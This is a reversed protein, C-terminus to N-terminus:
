RRNPRRGALEGRPMLYVRAFSTAPPASDEDRAFRPVEGAYTRFGPQQGVHASFTGLTARSSTHRSPRARPPLVDLWNQVLVVQTADGGTRVFVFVSDGPLVDYQAHNGNFNYAGGPLLTQRRVVRLTPTLALEAEMVTTGSRYFLEKGSRAWVPEVGGSVSIQVLGGPGPFPRVYVEDYGSEDSNYALWRGDPSLAPARENFRSNVFPRIASPDSAPFYSLDSNQNRGRDGTRVVIWRGDRSEVAEESSGARRFLPAQQGSGDAQITDITGDGTGTRIGRENSRFLIRRGDGSWAPYTNDGTSTLRTSTQERLRYLWLDATGSAAGSLREYVLADGDPSVRPSGYGGALGPADDLLRERGSRDVLMLGHAGIDRQYVLMGNRAVALEMWGTAGLVVGDFLPIPDGTIRMRDPDFPIVHVSHDARSFLVYGPDLYRADTGQILPTVKRSRLDVVAVDSNQRAGRSITILIGKGNPLVDAIAHGNEGRSTDPATIQTVAGGEAPVSAIGLTGTRQFYIRGDAGWALWGQLSDAIRKTIGGDIAMTMVRGSEGFAVSRGDPSVRPGVASLNTNPGTEVLLVPELRDLPQSWLSVGKAGRTRYIIRSGDPALGFSPGLASMTSGLSIGVRLARIAVPPRRWLLAACVLGVIVGAVGVGALLLMPRRGYPRASRGRLATTTAATTATLATAFEAATAFRDAPLKELATLVAAEVAPPVSRRLECPPRPDDTLVKAVIAQPTPGTFPPEGLLMEYTIAGLAYVDSRATIEREGMAQEPSMYHPTGLSLGTETMRHGGAKSAALAIGFDAVLARGDQLLINEPKIDRHIVGHRHAYDLASAVEGAVRVAEAIPLQKERHLRDRLSEGEVFPMVYYLFGDAQGSDFLPLISPHQLNATTRIEVLFREAGIVAALEPRLVKLAVRRDHRLDQALYVTAM